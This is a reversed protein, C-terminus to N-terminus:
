KNPDYGTKATPQHHVKIVGVEQESDRGSSDSDQGSDDKDADLSKTLPKQAADIVILHM